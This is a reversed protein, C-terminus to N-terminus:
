KYDLSSSPQLVSLMRVTCLTLSAARPLTPLAESTSGLSGPLSAQPMADWLVAPELVVSLRDSPLVSGPFEQASGVTWIQSPSGTTRPSGDM